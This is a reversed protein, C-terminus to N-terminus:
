IYALQADGVSLSLGAFGLLIIVTSGASLGNFGDIINIANAVGGVAFATFAVSVLSFGLMWDLGPVNARTISYGTIAWGLVGCFMTAFLRVRVSVRKTIDEALGLVFAPVGALLLPGCIEQLSDPSILYACISGIAIAVGGIRPTPHTHFKQIGEHSDISLHGHWEQTLVILLAVGFAVAAAFIAPLLMPDTLLMGYNM